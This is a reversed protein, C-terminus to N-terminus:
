DVLIHKMTLTMATTDAPMEQATSTPLKLDKSDKLQVPNNSFNKLLFVLIITLADMLSTIGLGSYPEEDRMKRKKKRVSGSFLSPDPPGAPADGGDEGRTDIAAANSM